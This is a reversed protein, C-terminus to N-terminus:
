KSGELKRRVQAVLKPIIASAFEAAAQDIVQNIYPSAPMKGRGAGRRTKRDKSGREVLHWHFGRGSTGGSKDIYVKAGGGKTGKHKEAKALNGTTKKTAGRLKDRTDKAYELSARRFANKVLPTADKSIARRLMELAPGYEFSVATGRGPM